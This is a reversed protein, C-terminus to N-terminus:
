QQTKRHFKKWIPFYKAFNCDRIQNDQVSEKDKLLTNALREFHM